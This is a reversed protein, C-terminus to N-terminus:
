SQYPLSDMGIVTAFGNLPRADEDAAVAIKRGGIVKGLLNLKQGEIPPPETL